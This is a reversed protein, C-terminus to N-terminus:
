HASGEASAAPKTQPIDTLSKELADKIAAKSIKTYYKATTSIETHGLAAQTVQVPVGTEAM